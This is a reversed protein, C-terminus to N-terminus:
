GDIYLAQFCSERHSQLEHRLYRTAVIDPVSILDLLTHSSLSCVQYEIVADRIDDVLGGLEEANKVNNFFGEAKSQKELQELAGAIGKLKRIM